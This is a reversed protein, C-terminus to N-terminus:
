APVHAAVVADLQTEEGGTLAALFAVTFNTDLGCGDYCINQLGPIAPGAAANIEGLLQVANIAKDFPYKM